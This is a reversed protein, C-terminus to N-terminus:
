TVFWFLRRRMKLKGLQVCSQFRTYVLLAIFWFLVESYVSGSSTKTSNDDKSYVNWTISVGPINSWESSSRLVISICAIVASACKRAATSYTMSTDSCHPWVTSSCTVEYRRMKKTLILIYFSIQSPLDLFQLQGRVLGSTVYTGSTLPQPWFGFWPSFQLSPDWALGVKIKYSCKDCFLTLFSTTNNFTQLQQCTHCWVNHLCIEM